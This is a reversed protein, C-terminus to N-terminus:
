LRNLLVCAIESNFKIAEQTDLTRNLLSILEDQFTCIANPKQQTQKEKLSVFM